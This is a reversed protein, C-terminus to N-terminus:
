RGKGVCNSGRFLRRGARRRRALGLAGAVLLWASRSGNAAGGMACGRTTTVTHSNDNDLPPYPVGCATDSVPGFNAYSDLAVVGVACPVDPTLPTLDANMVDSDVYGCIFRSVQDRTPTEGTGLRPSECFENPGFGDEPAASPPPDCLFAYRRVDIAADPPGWSIHLGNEIASAQVLTPATPPVVDYNYAWKVLWNSNPPPAGDGNVLEFYLTRSAPLETEGACPDADTTAPSRVLDRVFVEVREVSQGVEAVKTCAGSSRNALDDCATGVWAELHFSSTAAQSGSIDVNFRVLEDDSCNQWNFRNLVLRTPDYSPGRVVGENNNKLYISVAPSQASAKPACLLLGLAAALDLWRAGVRVGRM